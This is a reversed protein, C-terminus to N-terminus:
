TLDVHWDNAHLDVRTVTRPERAGVRIEYTDSAPVKTVVFTFRCQSAKATDGAAKVGVGGVLRGVRLVEGAANRIAVPSGDRATDVSCDRNPPFAGQETVTYTGTVKQGAPGRGTFSTAGMIFAGVAVLSVATVAASTVNIGTRGSTSGHM